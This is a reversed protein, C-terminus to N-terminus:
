KKPPQSLITMRGVEDFTAYGYEELVSSAFEGASMFDHGDGCYQDYMDLLADALKEKEERGEKEIADGFASLARLFFEDLDKMLVEDRVFMRNRAGFSDRMEEILKEKLEDKPTM